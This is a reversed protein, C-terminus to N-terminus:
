DGKLFCETLEVSDCKDYLADFHKMLQKYEYENYTSVDKYQADQSIAEFDHTSLYESYMQALQKVSYKM